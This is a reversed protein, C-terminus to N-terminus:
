FQFRAVLQLIRPPRVGNIGGNITGFGNRNVLNGAADYPLNTPTLDTLSRVNLTANVENFQTHNFANFADVRLEFRTTEGLYFNKQLSLDWNNIGQRELYNRGSELGRSGPLPATFVSTNFQRYPDDNNNGRGPNGIIRARAGETNSGTLERNGIGPISIGVGYPQGTQFRYIGSVQWGNTIFGLARNNTVRPTEYVFNVSLNHRRHLDAPGYNAFRTNDDIRIFSDDNPVTTM